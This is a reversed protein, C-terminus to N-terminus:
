SYFIVGKHNFLVIHHYLWSVFKLHRNKNEELFFLVTNKHGFAFILAVLILSVDNLFLKIHAFLNSLGLSHDSIDEILQFFPSQEM